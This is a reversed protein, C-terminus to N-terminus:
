KVSTVKLTDGLLSVGESLPAPFGMFGAISPLLDRQTRREAVAYGRSFRGGVALLMIHRCGECGDGHHQFGGHADDHRGHDNTVFLITQDRYFPDSQLYTWTEGVLSDATHIAQLYGGWSANHAMVDVAALSVFTLRPHLTSLVYRLTDMVAPDGVAFFVRGGFPMGYDSHISYGLVALKSKGVIACAATEGAGTSKRFYEFLTPKSPRETGDNKLFQWTGTSLSAHGANTQTLEENRFDSWVTGSSRLIRWMSPIYTSEAGFTETYRAGDIVVVVVNQGFSKQWLLGTLLILLFRWV